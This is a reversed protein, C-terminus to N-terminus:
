YYLRHIRCTGYKTWLSPIAVKEAGSPADIFWVYGLFDTDYDNSTVSMGEAFYQDSATEDAYHDSDPKVSRTLFVRDRNAQFMEKLAADVEASSSRQVSFDLAIVDAETKQLTELVSLLRRNQATQNRSASDYDVHVLAIDNSPQRDFLKAQLSWVTIDIPRLLTSAGIVVAFAIAIAAQLLRESAKPRKM